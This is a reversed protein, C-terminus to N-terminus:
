KGKNRKRVKLYFNKGFFFKQNGQIDYYMGGDDIFHQIDLLMWPIFLFILRVNFSPIDRIVIGYLVIVYCFKILTGIVPFHSFFSRHILLYEFPYALIFYVYKCILAIPRPYVKSMYHQILYETYTKGAVDIDPTMLLGFIIGVLVFVADAQASATFQKAIIIIYLAYLVIIAFSFKTNNKWHQVGSAM